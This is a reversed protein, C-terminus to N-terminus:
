HKPVLNSSQAIQSRVDKLAAGLSEVFVGQEGQTSVYYDYNQQLLSDAREVYGSQSYAQSLLLVPKINRIHAGSTNTRSAAVMDELLEVAQQQEGQGLLIEARIAKADTVLAYQPGFTDQLLRIASDIFTLAPGYQQAKLRIKALEADVLANRFHQEGLLQKYRDGAINIWYEAEVLDGKRAYIKGHNFEAYALSLDIPTDLNAWYHQVEKHLVLAEEHENIMSLAMAYHSQIDMLNKLKLDPIQKHIEFSKKFHYAAKEQKSQFRYLSALYQHTRALELREQEQV